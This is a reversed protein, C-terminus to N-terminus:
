GGLECSRCSRGNRDLTPCGAAYSGSPANASTVKVEGYKKM